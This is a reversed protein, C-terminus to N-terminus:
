IETQGNKRSIVSSYDLLTIYVKSHYFSKWHQYLGSFQLLYDGPKPSNQCKRKRTCCGLCKQITVRWSDYNQELKCPTRRDENKTSCQDSAPASCKKPRTHFLFTQQILLHTFYLAFDFVNLIHLCTVNNYWHMYWKHIYWVYTYLTHAWLQYKANSHLRTAPHLISMGMTICQNEQLSGM